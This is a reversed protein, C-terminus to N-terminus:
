TQDTSANTTEKTNNLELIQIANHAEELEKCLTQNTAQAITVENILQEILRAAQLTYRTPPNQVQFTNGEADTHTYSDGSKLINLLISHM